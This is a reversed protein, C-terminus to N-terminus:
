NAHDFLDTYQSVCQLFADVNSGYCLLVYKLANTTGCVTSLFGAYGLCSIVAMHQLSIEPDYRETLPAGM